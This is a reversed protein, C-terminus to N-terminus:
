KVNLSIVIALLWFVTKNLRHNRDKFFPHASLSVLILRKHNTSASTLSSHEPIASQSFSFQTYFSKTTTIVSDYLYYM